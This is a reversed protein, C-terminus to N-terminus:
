TGSVGAFRAMNRNVDAFISAGLEVADYREEDDFPYAVKTRGGIRTEKEYLDVDIREERGRGLKELKEQVKNLWYAASTGAPGGGIVAVRRPHAKATDASFSAQHANLASADVHLVSLVALVAVVLAIRCLVM